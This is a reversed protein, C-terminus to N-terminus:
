IEALNDLYFSINYLTANTGVEQAVSGEGDRTQQGLFAAFIGSNPM